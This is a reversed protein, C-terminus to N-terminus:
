NNYIHNTLQRENSNHTIQETGIPTTHTIQETRENINHQNNTGNTARYISKNCNKHNTWKQQQISTHSKNLGTQQPTHSKNLVRRQKMHSKNM